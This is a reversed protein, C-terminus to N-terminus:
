MLMSKLEHVYKDYSKWSLATLLIENAYVNITPNSLDFALDSWANNIFASSLASFVNRTVEHSETDGWHNYQNRGAYVILGIPIGYYERGICFPIATKNKSSVLNACTSPILKNSSYLQIAMFAIQLIGGAFMAESFKLDFYKRALELYKAIASKNEETLPQNVKSIDWHELAKEYYSWCSDLGAYYHRVAHETIKFYEDATKPATFKM